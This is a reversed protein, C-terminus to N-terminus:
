IFEFLKQIENDDWSVYVVKMTTKEKGYFLKYATLSWFSDFSFNVNNNLSLRGMQWLESINNLSYLMEFRM